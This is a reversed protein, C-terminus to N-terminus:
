VFSINGRSRLSASRFSKPWSAQKLAGLMPDTCLLNLLAADETKGQAHAKDASRWIYTICLFTSQLDLQFSPAATSLPLRTLPYQSSGFSRFSM